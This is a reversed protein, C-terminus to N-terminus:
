RMALGMGALSMGPQSRWYRVRSSARRMRLGARAGWAQLVCVPRHWRRTWVFGDLRFKGTACRGHARRPISAQRDVRAATCPRRFVPKRAGRHARWAQAPRGRCHSRGTSGPQVRDAPCTPTAGYGRANGPRASSHRAAANHRRRAPLLAPARQRCQQQRASAVDAGHETPWAPAGSSQHRPPTHHACAPQVQVARAASGERRFVAAANRPLLAVDGPALARTM